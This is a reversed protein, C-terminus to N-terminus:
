RQASQLASAETLASIHFEADEAWLALLRVGSQLRLSSVSGENLAPIVTQVLRGQQDYCLLHNAPYRSDIRYNGDEITLVPFPYPSAEPGDYTFRRETQEGSKNVLVARYQGRPLSAGAYMAISRSGIWNKEDEEHTIWDESTFLWRLSERDNYLYLESLNEVGGEDEALVFFSFREEPRGATQYYVLNMFGYLIQPESRSCSFVLIYLLAIPLLLKKKKM